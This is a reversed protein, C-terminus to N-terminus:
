IKCFYIILEYQHKTMYKELKIFLDIITPELENKLLVNFFMFYILYEKHKINSIDDLNNTAILFYEFKRKSSDKDKEIAPIIFELLTEQYKKRYTDSINPINQIVSILLEFFLEYEKLNYLKTLTKEYNHKSIQELLNKTKPKSIFECLSKVLDKRQSDKKCEEIKLLQKKIDM